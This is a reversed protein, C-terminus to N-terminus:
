VKGRSTRFKANDGDNLVKSLFRKDGADIADGLGSKEFFTLPVSAVKHYDGFRQGYSAKEEEANAEIIRDVEQEVHAAKMQGKEDYGLWVKRGIEHDHDFLLWNLGPQM